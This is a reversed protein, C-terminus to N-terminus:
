AARSQRTREGSQEHDLSVTDLSQLTRMNQRQRLLMRAIYLAIGGWIVAFAALFTAM